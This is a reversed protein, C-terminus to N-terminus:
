KKLRVKFVKIIFLPVFIFLFSRPLMSFFSGINLMFVLSFKISLDLYLYKYGIYNQMASLREFFLALGLFLIHYLGIGLISFHYVGSVSLPVIKDAWLDHGLIDVNYARSTSYETYALKSLVPMNRVIDTFLFKPSDYASSELASSIGAAIAGPGTLYSNLSSASVVQTWSFSTQYRSFKAVSSIVIMLAMLFVLAINVNKMKGKLNNPVFENVLILLPLAFLVMSLRSMGVVVSSAMGVVLLYLFVKLAESLNSTKILTLLLLALIIRFSIFVIGGYGQTAEIEDELAAQVYENLYWVYNIKHFLNTGQMYFFMLALLLMVTIKNYFFSTIKVTNNLRYQQRRGFYGFLIGCFLLEFLMVIVGLYVGGNVGTISLYSDQFYAFPFILYRFVATVLWVKFVISKSYFGFLNRFLVLWFLFGIPLLIASISVESSSEISLCGLIFILAFAFAVLARFVIKINLAQSTLM